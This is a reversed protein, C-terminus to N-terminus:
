ESPTNLIIKFLAGKYLKENYSFTSNKVNIESEMGETILKYTMHLGLGTGVGEHKTTFYPEFVKSLINEPIGGANDKMQIIINTDIKEVSIFILRNEINNSIFADKSNNFINIYCQILENPYSKININEDIDIIINIDNSKKTGEILHLFSEINEKLNIDKLVREGKIFNRFDDITTSLYQTNKHILECNELFEEESLEGYHKKIAMGTASTSIISLPQRWQHAINGIMEGMSALKEKELLIKEKEKLEQNKKYEKTIDQTTGNMIIPEQKEDLIIDSKVELIKITGNISLLRHTLSISKKDKLCHKYQKKVYEKDEPHIKELLTNVTLNEENKEIEFINYTEDSCTLKETQINISWSGMKAVEQALELELKNKLIEGTYQRITKDIMLSIFIAIIIGIVSIISILYITDLINQEKYTSLNDELEKIQKELDEFYYGSVIVWNWDKQLYIYAKVRKQKNESEKMYWHDLFSYGKEELDKLYVERFNIGKSDKINSNIKKGIIKKNVTNILVTAFDEGGKINHLDIIALFLNQNLKLSQFREIVEKKLRNEIVDLYEGTGILLDLPKYETVSVLKPYGIVRNGPKYFYRKLLGIEKGSELAKDHALAVNVGRTDNVHAMSTGITEKHVHEYVLRTSNQYAFYYGRNEKDFRIAALQKAVMQRMQHETLTDKYNNYVFDCISRAIHMRLNLEKKLQEEVKTEKFKISDNVFSVQKKINDNHKKIFEKKSLEIDNKIYKEFANINIYTNISSILIISIIVLALIPILFRKTKSVTDKM